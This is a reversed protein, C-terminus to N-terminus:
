FAPTSAWAYNEELFTRVKDTHLHKILAKIKDSNINDERAVLSIAFDQVADLNFDEIFLMQENGVLNLPRMYTPYNIVHNIDKTYNSHMTSLGLEQFTLNLPNTAINSLAPINTFNEDLTILDAEQLLLLARGLNDKDNPIGIVSNAKVEEGNRSYLAFTAYYINAAHVLNGNNGENFTRMFYAHQIMNADFEKNNLAINPLTHNGNFMEYTLNYGEEKLDDKILDLIDEMPYFSVAVKLDELDSTTNTCGVLLLGTLLVVITLLVKKM